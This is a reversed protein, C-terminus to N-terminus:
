AAQDARLEATVDSIFLVNRSSVGIAQAIKRYSDIEKKAGTKTDFYGCLFGTIDGVETDRFLLQQAQM